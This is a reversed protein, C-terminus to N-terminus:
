RLFEMLLTAPNTFAGGIDMNTSNVYTRLDVTDGITLAIMITNVANTGPVSTARGYAGAQSYLLRAGNKYIATRGFYRTGADIDFNVSYGIKYLGTKQITVTGASESYYDADEVVVTDCDLLTWAVVGARETSRYAFFLGQNRKVEVTGSGGGTLTVTM